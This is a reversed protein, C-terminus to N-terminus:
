MGLEILVHSFIMCPSGSVPFCEARIWLQVLCRGVKELEKM